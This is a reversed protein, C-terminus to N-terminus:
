NLARRVLDAMGSAFIGKDQRLSTSGRECVSFLIGHNYFGLGQYCWWSWLWNSVLVALARKRVGKGKVPLALSVVVWAGLDRVIVSLARCDTCICVSITYM